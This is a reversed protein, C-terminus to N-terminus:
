LVHGGDLVPVPLLNLIALNVNLLVLFSLALRYDTKVWAGLMALIGLPGTLDKAGVGTEKSHFLASLTRITKDWVGWVQAWPTPGPRMVEYVSVTTNGVIVGILGEGDPMKKPKITLPTEEGNRNVVMASPEDPRGKILKIFQDRSAIPVGAFSLVVDGKQLGAEQGAGGDMVEIVEPHDRPELNLMKLGLEESIRTKLQCTLHEGDHEIVVPLESHRSLITIEHVDQWTTVKRGDVEVVRDGERIGQAYEDSDPDVHGIISPNVLMPLGVFYIITAVVFAFIVNMLPGAIAVLIKSAPPAPPIPQGHDTAGELADSTLMQPLKVFGGAPIWRISYEIGRRTTSWIKPGFGIAFAEVRMRRWLAVIFHGFEHVFITGGFLLVVAIVVYLHDLLKEM